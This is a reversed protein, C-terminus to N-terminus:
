LFCQESVLVVKLPTDGWGSEGRWERDRSNKYAGPILVEIILMAAHCVDRDKVSPKEM